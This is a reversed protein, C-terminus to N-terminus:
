AQKLPLHVTFTSGEGPESVFTIAGGHEEIIKRTVLLGFGSGKSGKTSFFRSFLEEQVEKKMGAGSDVIDLRIGDEVKRTKVVVSLNKGGGEQDMCADIANTVLNLLSRHIGEP